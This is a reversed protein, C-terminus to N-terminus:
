NLTQCKQLMKNLDLRKPLPFRFPSTIKELGSSIRTLIQELHNVQIAKGGEKEQPKISPM